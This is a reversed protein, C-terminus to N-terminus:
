SAQLRYEIYAEDRLRRLWAEVEEDLKRERIIERARARQVETTSDHDRRELVQVIHWGFPTQFPPSVSGPPLANMVREFEPVVDGPSVWGLDGGKVASGRDESHARALEEFDDGGEIRQRLQALRRRAEDASTVEDPRILIHRAHTQRVIHEDGGYRADVLKVIHFGSPSRLVESVDGPDMRPVVEAFLTPLESGARWGLDGGELAQQGDSVSVATRAFDAGARLDALVQEAEARAAETQDPAAAEPVAILIHALRYEGEIGAQRAVTEMLNEIERESVTIRNDVQRRRLQELTLKRRIDERFAAFDFGDRALVERFQGVTLGNREAISRVAENLVEDDIQVGTREAVQLQLRELVLRELVQRELVREPPLRTGQQRLQAAISRTSSELESAVIVDDNVVAVIRDFALVPLAPALGLLLGILSSALLKRM